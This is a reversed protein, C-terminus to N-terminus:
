PSSSRAVRLGWNYGVALPTINGRWSCRASHSSHGYSGGRFVRNTGLAPGRPNTTNNSTAYYSSGYWDWCWENLNGATDRLGYGNGAFRRVPSTYPAGGTSYTPHYNNIPSLDYFNSSSGLYNADAHSITDAGSPFRKGSVGGRAAKEWEAETPLRYGNAGWNADPDTTGTRMVNGGVTYCPTLGEMESRANCWKVVDWWSVSHVPHDAAKGGGASLDSYGNALGWTRVEDWQAKTTETEAMFFANVTVTIPPADGDTDGSTRGMTFSGGPILAFGDIISVAEGGRVAFMYTNDSMGANMARILVTAEASGAGPTCRIQFSAVGNPSLSAVGPQAAVSFRPDGVVSVRPSGFSLAATGYNKLVFTRTIAPGSTAEGFDTGDYEDPETADDAIFVGEGTVALAGRPAASTVRLQYAGRVTADLGRVAVLYSGPPLTREIQFGFSDSKAQGNAVLTVTTRWRPKPKPAGKRRPRPKLRTKTVKYLAGTTNTEGITFIRYVASRSVNLTFQDQDGGFNIGGTPSALASRTRATGALAATPTNPHDDTGTFGSGTGAVPLYLTPSWFFNIGLTSYSRGNYAGNFRVLFDGSSGPGIGSPPQQVVTFRGQDGGSVAVPNTGLFSIIGAGTNTIRFMMQRPARGKVLTGFHIEPAAPPIETYHSASGDPEDNYSGHPTFVWRSGNYVGTDVRFETGSFGSAGTAQVSIGYDGMESPFAGRVLLTNSAGPELWAAIHFNHQNGVGMTYVGGNDNTVIGSAGSRLTGVLDLAGTSSIAYNGAAPVVISYRDIDGPTELRASHAVASPTLDVIRDDDPPDGVVPGGARAIADAILLKAHPSAVSPGRGDGRNMIAGVQWGQDNNKVFWPGGSNGGWTAVSPNKPALVHPFNPFDDFKSNVPGIQHMGWMIPNSDADDRREPFGLLMKMTRPSRLLANSEDKLVAPYDGGALNLAGVLAVLDHNDSHYPRIGLGLKKLTRETERYLSYTSNKVLSLHVGASTPEVASANTGHWEARTVWPYGVITSYLGKVARGDESDDRADYIVHNNTLAVRPHSVVVGSGRYDVDPLIGAREWVSTILGAFKYPAADLPVFVPLATQQATVPSFLSTIAIAATLSLRYHNM